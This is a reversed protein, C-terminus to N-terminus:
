AEVLQDRFLEDQFALEKTVDRAVRISGDAFRISNWM